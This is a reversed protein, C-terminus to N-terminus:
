HLAPTGPRCILTVRTAAGQMEIGLVEMTRRDLDGGHIEIAGTGHFTADLVRLLAEGTLFAEVGHAVRHLSQSAVRKNDVILEMKPKRHQGKGAGGQIGIAGIGPGHRNKL